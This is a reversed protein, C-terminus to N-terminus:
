EAAAAQVAGGNRIAALLEERRKAVTQVNQQKVPGFGRIQMPLEFLALVLDQTAPTVLPMVEAVDREFEAILAREM